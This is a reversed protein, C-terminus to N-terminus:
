RSAGATAKAKGGSAQAPQADPARPPLERKSLPAATSRWYEEAAAVGSGPTIKMGVDRMAMEAGALAGMLMLENLDGLHGIRFLKGAMRALGAGLALDYRRYAVDIVEAGNIGPPVMIASVTDSHWKPARACLELGWAKVAQRTGEALRHHRAFVNELGEEMLIALSERLGYLLPLSPTYPFYGTTNAKRMDGFDFYVRPLKAQDYLALAKQSAAVIGLGAPLMLGKQSGTIALDVGWEDMRFDISGISSVGDVMLLAPHKTDNLARRIPAVDSTVGTATENHTFLVAKIAHSKDAALAEQYREIPAGEGWEAEIVDVQLGLRQAMDIWLQSFMGFRSALVRDGPSLTNSLAAEWAGTGSSPFIFAQGSTTKFIKKLDQLVPAALAPFDSSRHDEMPRHMARLVRDPVNTPGPVFLFNRGAM